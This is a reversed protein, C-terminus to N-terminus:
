QERGIREKWRRITRQRKYHAFTGAAKSEAGFLSVARLRFSTQPLYFAPKKSM